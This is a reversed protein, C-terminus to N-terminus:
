CVYHDIPLSYGKPQPVSSTLLVVVSKTRKRVGLRVNKQDTEGQNTRWAILVHPGLHMM